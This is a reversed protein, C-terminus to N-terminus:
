HLPSPLWKLLSGWGNEPEPDARRPAPLYEAPIKAPAPGAEDVSIYIPSTAPVLGLESARKQIRALSTLRAVDAEVLATEGELRVQKAQLAQVEFGRSTTSSNQLVPLMASATALAVAGMVWWNIARVPAPLPVSGRFPRQIAAM